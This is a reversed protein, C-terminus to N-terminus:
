FLFFSIGILVFLAGSIKSITKPEIKNSLFKGLYIAAVSVILLGAMVGSLVMWPDYDAAFLGSALQTKDGWEAMFIMLFGSVFPNKMQVNEDKNSDKELLTLIGFLIFIGGSFIKLQNMPVITTIWSGLLIAIGDVLLFALMVGFLLSLHKKTKSSMLLVSLQTKDGLEALGITVFPILFDELMNFFSSLIEPLFSGYTMRRSSLVGCGAPFFM